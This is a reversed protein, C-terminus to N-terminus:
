KSGGRGERSGPAAVPGETQQRQPRSCIGVSGPGFFVVFFPWLSSAFPAFGLFVFSRWLRGEAAPARVSPKAPRTHSSTRLTRRKSLARFFL